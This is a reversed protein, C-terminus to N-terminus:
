AAILDINSDTQGLTPNSAKCSLRLRLVGGFSSVLNDAMPDIVWQSPSNDRTAVPDIDIAHWVQLVL